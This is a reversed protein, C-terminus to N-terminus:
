SSIASRIVLGEEEGGSGDNSVLFKLSDFADKYNAKFYLRWRFCKKRSPYREM